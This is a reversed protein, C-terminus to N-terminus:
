FYVYNTIQKSWYDSAVDCRWLTSVLLSFLSQLGLFLHIEKSHIVNAEDGIKQGAPIEIEM